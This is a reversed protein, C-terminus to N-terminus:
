RLLPSDTINSTNRGPVEAHFHWELDIGRETAKREFGFEIYRKDLGSRVGEEILEEYEKWGLAQVPHEDLRVVGYRSHYEDPNLNKPFVSSLVYAGYQYSSYVRLVEKTQDKSLLTSLVYRIKEVSNMPYRDNELRGRDRQEFEFRFAEAMFRVPSIHEKM